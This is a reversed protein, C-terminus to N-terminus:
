YACNHQLAYSASISVISASFPPSSTASSASPTAPYAIGYALFSSSNPRPYAQQMNPQSQSQAYHHSSQPLSLPPPPSHNHPSSSEIYASDQDVFMRRRKGEREFRRDDSPTPLESRRNLDPRLQANKLEVQRRLEEIERQLCENEHELERIRVLPPPLAAVQDPSLALVSQLKTVTQELQEIYAKRKARHRAQAKANRSREPRESSHHPSGASAISQEPSGALSTMPTM